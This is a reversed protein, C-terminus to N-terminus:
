ITRSETYAKFYGPRVSGGNLDIGDWGQFRYRVGSSPSRALGHGMDWCMVLSHKATDRARTPERAVYLNLM